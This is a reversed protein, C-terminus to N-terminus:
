NLVKFLVKNNVNYEQKRCTTNTLNNNKSVLKNRREKMYTENVDCQVTPMADRESM